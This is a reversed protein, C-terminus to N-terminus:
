GKKDDGEMLVKEEMKIPTKKQGLMIAMQDMVGGLNKELGQQSKINVEFCFSLLETAAGLPLKKIDNVNVNSLDAILEPAHNAILDGVKPFINILVDIMFKQKTTEPKTSISAPQEDTGEFEMEIDGSLDQMGEITGEEQFACIVSRWEKFLKGIKKLTTSLEELGLPKIPIEKTGLIFNTAPLLLDWDSPELTIPVPKEDMQAM